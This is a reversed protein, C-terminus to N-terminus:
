SFTQEQDPDLVTKQISGYIFTRNKQVIIQIGEAQMSNQLFAVLKEDQSRM